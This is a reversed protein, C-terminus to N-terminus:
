DSLRTMLSLGKKEGGGARPILVSSCKQPDPFHSIVTTSESEWQTWHPRPPRSEPPTKSVTAAGQETKQKQHGGQECGSTSQDRQLTSDARLSCATKRVGKRTKVSLGVANFM